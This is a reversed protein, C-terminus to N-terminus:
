YKRKRMGESMLWSRILRVCHWNLHEALCQMILSIIKRTRFDSFTHWITRLSFQKLCKMEIICKELSKFNFVKFSMIKKVIVLNFNIKISLVVSKISLVYFIKLWKKFENFLLSQPVFIFHFHNKIKSNYIKCLTLSSMNVSSNNSSSLQHSVSQRTASVLTDLTWDVRRGTYFSHRSCVKEDCGDMM